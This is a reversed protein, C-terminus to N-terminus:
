TERSALVVGARWLREVLCEAAMTALLLDAERTLGGTGRIAAKLAEVAEDDALHRPTESM